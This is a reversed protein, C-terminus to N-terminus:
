HRYHHYFSFGKHIDFTIHAFMVLILDYRIYQSELMGVLLNYNWGSCKM